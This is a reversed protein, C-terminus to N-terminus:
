VACQIGHKPYEHQTLLCKDKWRKNIFYLYRFQRLEKSQARDKHQQIYAAMKSLKPNRTMLSNHYVADDLFWFLSLHEGYYHFNSAQYVVGFRGCREDAFSQIWKIKPHKARIFKISYSIVKSETNRPMSDCVWLRNLELYEDIKTDSCVSEQSAPNMAFGYQMVGKLAEGEFIGLHITSAAYYKKSYHNDVVMKNAIDRSIEKVSVEGGGFGVIEPKGFLAGQDSYIFGIM